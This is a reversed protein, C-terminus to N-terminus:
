LPPYFSGFHVQSTILSTLYAAALFLLADNIGSKDDAESTHNSAPTLNVTLPKRILFIKNIGNHFIPFIIISLIIQIISFTM